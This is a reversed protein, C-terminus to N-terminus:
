GALEAVSRVLRRFRRARNAQYIEPDTGVGNIGTLFQQGSLVRLNPDGMFDTYVKRAVIKRGSPKRAEKTPISFYVAQGNSKKYLGFTHERGYFLVTDNGFMANTWTEIDDQTFM